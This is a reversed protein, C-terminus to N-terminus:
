AAGAIVDADDYDDEAAYRQDDPLTEGPKKSAREHAWAEAIDHVMALAEDLAFAVM